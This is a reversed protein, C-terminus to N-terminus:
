VQFIGLNIARRAPPSVDTVYAQCVAGMCSSVGDVLDAIYFAAVGESATAQILCTSAFGLASWAMLPKRGVVDSLAGSFGVFLFTILKDLSEVDGGLVASAPSVNPSGDANVITSIVRGLVPITLGLCLFSLWNHLVAWWISGAVAPAATASGRGDGRKAALLAASGSVEHRTLSPKARKRVGGTPCVALGGVLEGAAAAAACVAFIFQLRM